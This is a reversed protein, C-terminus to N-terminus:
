SIRRLPRDAPQELFTCLDEFSLARSYVWGQVLECRNRRIVPLQEDLEIGEVVVSLGLDHLMRTVSAFVAADEASTHIDVVFSRDIKVTDIPLSRLQSLSSYGTGFDDLAIRVGMRRLCELTRRIRKHTSLIATETIEIELAEPPLGTDNLVVAVQEPFDPQSFQLASVNVAVSIAFGLARWRCADQCAQRLIWGGLGAIIGSEEALPIFRAPSVAGLDPSQWRLLAEVSDTRHTYPCVKPQYVLRMEGREAAGRLRAAIHLREELDSQLSRDYLCTDTGDRRAAEAAALRAQALLEDATLEPSSVAIGIHADFDLRQGRTHIPERLRELVVWALARAVSPADLPECILALENESLQILEAPVGLSGLRTHLIQTAQSFAAEESTSRLATLERLRVILLGLLCERQRVRELARELRERAAVANPIAHIVDDFTQRLLRDKLHSPAQAQLMRELVLALDRLQAQEAPTLTRPARDGVCLVYGCGPLTCSLSVGALMRLQQPGAVWPHAAARADACADPILLLGDSSRVLAAFGDIPDAELVEAGCVSKLWIREPRISLVCVVPAGLLQATLRTLADLAAEPSRPAPQLSDQPHDGHDPQPCTSM